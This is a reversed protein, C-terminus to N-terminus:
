IDTTCVFINQRWITSEHLCWHFHYDLWHIRFYLFSGLYHDSSKIVLHDFHSLPPHVLLKHEKIMETNAV